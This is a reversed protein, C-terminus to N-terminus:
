NLLDKDAGFDTNAMLSVAEKAKPLTSTKNRREIDEKMVQGAVVSCYATLVAELTKRVEGLDSNKIARAYSIDCIGQFAKNLADSAVNMTQVADDERGYLVANFLTLDLKMTM